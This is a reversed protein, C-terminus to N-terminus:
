GHATVACTERSVRLGLEFFGGDSCFGGRVTLREEM